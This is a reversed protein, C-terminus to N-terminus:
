VLEILSQYRMETTKNLDYQELIEIRSDTWSKHIFDRDFTVQDVCFSWQPQMATRWSDTLCIAGSCIAELWAINSKSDNFLINELPKWVINPALRRLGSFYDSLINTWPLFSCKIRQEAPIEYPPQYGIWMFNRCRSLHSLFEEERRWLDYFGMVSGRWVMRNEIPNPGNPLDSPLVANPVVVCKPHQLAVKLPKTSVWLTDALRVAARVHPAAGSLSAYAGHSVPINLLDDDYDLVVRCGENKAAELVAVQAPNSIHLGLVIDAAMLDSPLIQGRNWIIELDPHQKALLALPRYMRYFTVGNVPAPENLVLVKIKKM